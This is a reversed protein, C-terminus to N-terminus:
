AHRSRWTAAAPLLRRARAGDARCGALPSLRGLRAHRLHPACRRRRAPRGGRAARAHPREGLSARSPRRRASRRRGSRPWCSARRPSRRRGCRPQDVRRRRRHRHGDGAAAHLASIERGLAAGRRCCSRSSCSARGGPQDQRARPVAAELPLERRGSPGAIVARAGSPLDAGSGCGGFPRRQLHQRRPQRPEAGARRRDAAGVPCRGSLSVRRGAHRSVATANAAAGISSAATPAAGRDRDAGPHAQPRRHPAARRRGERLQPILDTGGALARADGAACPPLPRRSRGPASMSLTRCRDAGSFGGARIACRPGDRRPRGNAGIETAAAEGGVTAPTPVFVADSRESTRDHVGRPPGARRSRQRAGGPPGHRWRRSHAAPHAPGEQARREQPLRRARRRHAGRGARRGARGAHRTRSLPLARGHLHHRGADRLRVEFEIEQGLGGRFRGAGGSGPRLEKKHVFLASNREILEVPVNSVNSPWAYTSQGDNSDTAGMGGNFFLVNAYTAGNARVGTQIMSWLRRARPRWSAIRSSPLSRASCPSPCTTARRWAGASPRRSARTSSPARPHRWRSAASSARTTPCTRCCRANSRM